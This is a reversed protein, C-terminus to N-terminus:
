ANLFHLFGEVFQMLDMIIGYDSYRFIPANRDTNVAIIKRAYRLGVIHNDQGSIGLAIYVDPSVASGTLGIQQQRPIYNMDVIPRSGGVSAGLMSALEMIKPLDEKRKLGRGIGLILRSGELPKFEQPVPIFQGYRIRGAPDLSMHSISPEINVKVKRFMGPRATAMAPKKRSIIEAIVGGGFAPKYQLLGRDGYSLDVCDATLGLGFRAAVLSSIQRGTVTSPFILFEPSHKKIEDVIYYSLGVADTGSIIDVHHAPVSRPDSFEVNGIVRVYFSNESAIDAVKSAIELSANESDIAIAWAEGRFEAYNLDITKMRDNKRSVRIIEMIQRYMDAGPDIFVPSRNSNVQETGIVATPSDRGGDLDLGLWKTDIQVIRDYMQPTDPKIARARNIKESLSLVCPLPASCTYIGNELEQELELHDSIMIKSVSPVYPWGMLASVEAPVQSTEGDLSYKGKLVLDPGYRLAFAALVRSTILTDSNALSPDTILYGREIGMRLAENIVEVAQPPGMTAVCTEWGHRESIRIAEEVAKKDFSNMMLPVDKRVIRKTEPDFKIKNVDPVQKVFVLLKM